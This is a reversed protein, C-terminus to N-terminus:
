CSDSLGAIKFLWRWGFLWVIAAAVPVLDFKVIKNPHCILAPYFAHANWRGVMM